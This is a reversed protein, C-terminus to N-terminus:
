QLDTRDSETNPDGPPVPRDSSRDFDDKQGLGDDRGPQTDRQAPAALRPQDPKQQEPSKPQEVEAFGERSAKGREHDTAREEREKLDTM